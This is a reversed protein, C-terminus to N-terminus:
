VTEYAGDTTVSEKKIGLNQIYKQSLTCHATKLLQFIHVHPFTETFYQIGHGTIHYVLCCQRGFIHFYQISAEACISIAFHKHMASCLNAQTTCVEGVDQM